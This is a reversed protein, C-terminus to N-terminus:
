ASVKSILMAVSIGIALCSMIISLIIKTGEDNAIAWILEKLWNM